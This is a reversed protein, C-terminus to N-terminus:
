DEALTRTAATHAGHTSVMAVFPYRCTDVAWAVPGAACSCAVPVAPAKTTKGKAGAGAGAGEAERPAPAPPEAAREMVAPRRVAARGSSRGPGTTSGGM